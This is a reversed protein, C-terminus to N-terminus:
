PMNTLVTNYMSQIPFTPDYLQLREQQEFYMCKQVDFIQVSSPYLSISGAQTTTSPTVMKTQRCMSVNKFINHMIKLHTKEFDSQSFWTKHHTVTHVTANIVYLKQMNKQTITTEGHWMKPVQQALSTFNDMDPNDREVFSLHNRLYKTKM